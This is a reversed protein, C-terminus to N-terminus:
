FVPLVISMCRTLKKGDIEAARFEMCGREDGIDDRELSVGELSGPKLDFKLCAVAATLQRFLMPKGIKSAFEREREISCTLSRTM